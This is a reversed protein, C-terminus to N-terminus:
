SDLIGNKIAYAVLQSSNHINLKKFINKRHTNVTHFSIFLKNAIEKTTDGKAIHMIIELERNSFLFSEINKFVSAVKSSNIYKENVIKIVKECFFTEKKILADIANIIETKECEKLIYARVGLNIVKLIDEKNKNSSIVLISIQSHEKRLIFIDHISFHNVICFDIIVIDPKLKLVKEFLEKSNAVEVISNIFRKQSLIAKIGEKVLIHTDAILIKAM